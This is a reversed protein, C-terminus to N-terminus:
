KGNIFYLYSVQDSYCNTSFVGSTQEYGAKIFFCFTFAQGVPNWAFWNNLFPIQFCLYQMMIFISSFTDSANLKMPIM